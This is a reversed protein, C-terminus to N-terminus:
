RLRNNYDEPSPSTTGGGINQNYLREGNTRRIRKM